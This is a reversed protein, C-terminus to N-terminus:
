DGRPPFIGELAIIFNVALFPQRNEHPASSGAPQVQGPSMAAAPASGDTTYPNDAWAAPYGGAAGATTAPGGARVAHSHAPLESPSLSVSEQGVAQGPYVPGGHVGGTDQHLPFRGRLDPLQFTTTGNGGYTTGLLAFLASNDAISMMQGACYAWGVPAFNGGFMRIEGLYPEAM